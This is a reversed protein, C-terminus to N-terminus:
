QVKPEQSVPPVKGSHVEYLRRHASRAGEVLGGYPHDTVDVFGINYNEGDNRGTVSQDVFIFWSAGVFGPTSAAHELYYQYAVGREKEDPVQVLGAALGRGPTGNHFEGIIIPRGAIQRTRELVPTSTESM